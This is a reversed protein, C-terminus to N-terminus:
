SLNALMETHQPDLWTKFYTEITQKEIGRTIFVLRTRRDECPWSELEMPEHFVHQVGHLIIPCEPNEKLAVIGKIRLLDKGQSSILMQMALVFASSSVPEDIILSFAQISENHRNIDHHHHHHGHDHGTKTGLWKDLDYQDTERNYLATDFLNNLDFGAANKDQVLANPNIQVVRNKLDYVAAEDVNLDSKTFVVRDALAVQKACEEQDDLTSLANTTDLTTIVGALMFRKMIRPDTMLTHMVPAPDALGTTEVIVRDFTKLQGEDRKNHLDLLTETIDGRVTCCLCGTTMEVIQEEAHVVLFDDLGVEGFENIIVAANAFKPDKLVQSLLTSKGSGLFGTLLTVPILNM